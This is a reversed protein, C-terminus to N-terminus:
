ENTGVCEYIRACSYTSTRSHGAHQAQTWLNTFLSLHNHSDHRRIIDSNDSNIVIM